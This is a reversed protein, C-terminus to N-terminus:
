GVRDASVQAIDQFGRRSLGDILALMIDDETFEAEETMEWQSIDVVFRQADKVNESRAM